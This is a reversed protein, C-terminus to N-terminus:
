LHSQAALTHASLIHMKHNVLSSHLYNLRLHRNARLHGYFLHKRKRNSKDVQDMKSKSLPLRSLADLRM